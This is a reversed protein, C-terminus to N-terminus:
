SALGHAALFQEMEPWAAGLFTFEDPYAPRMDAVLQEVVGANRPGAAAHAFARVVRMARLTAGPSTAEFETWHEDLVRAAGDPRGARCELLARAFAKVAPYDPMHREGDRADANSMSREAGELNGALVHAIALDVASMKYMASAKLVRAFRTDNDALVETAHAHKGQRILTWGLNHRAYASVLASTADESWRWFLDHARQHEGRALMAIGETNEAVFRRAQRTAKITAVVAFLVIVAVVIGIVLSAPVSSDSGAMAYVGVFTAVCIVWM